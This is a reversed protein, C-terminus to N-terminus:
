FKYTVFFPNNKVNQRNVTLNRLTNNKYDRLERVFTSNWIYSFSFEEDSGAIGWSSLTYLPTIQYKSHLYQIWEVLRHDIFM